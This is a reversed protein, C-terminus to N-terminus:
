ILIFIYKNITRFLYPIIIESNKNKNKYGKIKRNM